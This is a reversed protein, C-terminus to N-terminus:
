VTERSIGFKRALDAKPESAAVRLLLDDAQRDSLTYKGGKYAGRQQALAIGELQREARSSGERKNKGQGDEYTEIDGEPM